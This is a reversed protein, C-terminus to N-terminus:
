RLPQRIVHRTDKGGMNRQVNFSRGSEFKDTAANRSCFRHFVPLVHNQQHDERCDDSYDNGQKRERGLLAVQREPRNEVLDDALKKFEVSM